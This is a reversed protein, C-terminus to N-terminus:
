YVSALIDDVCMLTSTKIDSWDETLNPGNQNPHLISKMSSGGERRSCSAWAIDASTQLLHLPPLEM